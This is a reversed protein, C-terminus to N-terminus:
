REKARLGGRHAAHRQDIHEVLVRVIAEETAHRAGVDLSSKAKPNQMISLALVPDGNVAALVGTLASVGNLTGTKARLRGRAHLQRNRLTGPQGAIPLVSLLGSNPPQALHAASLLDVLGRATFRGEHTLGSGNDVVLASPTVGVTGWYLELIRKGHAFSGVGDVQRALTRLIQETAFNNSYAMAARAVDVLPLSSWTKLLHASPPAVGRAISLRASRWVTGLAATFAHAFNLGPDHIRRREFLPKSGARLQGRVEVITQEGHEKTRVWLANEPAVEGEVTRGQNDVVIYPSQPETYVRVAEGAAGPTISIGVANDALSLAGTPAAYVLGINDLVFGPIFREQSFASEDIVLRTIRSLDSKEALEKVHETLRSVSITPDGSGVIYLTDADRLVRTEFRFEPGLLDLAACSTLMKQNSAPNRLESGLHDYLVRQSQLHRVHVSVTAKAEARKVVPDLRVALRKAEMQMARSSWEDSEASWADHMRKVRSSLARLRMDLVRSRPADSPAEARAFFGAAAGGEALDDASLTAASAAPAVEEAVPPEPSPSPPAAAPEEGREAFLRAKAAIDEPASVSLPPPPLPPAEAPPSTCAGLAVALGCALLRARM